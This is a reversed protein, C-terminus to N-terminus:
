DGESYTSLSMPKLVLYDKFTVTIVLLVLATKATVKNM